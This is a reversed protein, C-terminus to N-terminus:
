YTTVRDVSERYVCEAGVFVIAFATIKKESFEKASSYRKLQETAGSIAEAITKEKIANSSKTTKKKSIDRKKLYKLEYLL